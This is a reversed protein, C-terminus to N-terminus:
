AYPGGDHRLVLVAADDRHGTLDAVAIVEAALEDADADYAAGVLAAVRALGKEIPYTPGEVVGDTILVFAGEQSLLRRTVPYEGDPFLGLPLGGADQLVQAGEATGWIAPVHGARSDALEGTVPDFRLFTCTTLLDSSMSVLLNNARSLVDGPDTTAGAVARLGTRVMGMFAAAEVDHGQVDGIAFGLSGDPLVFADYWDGGIDLGTQAPVYRAATRLGPLGPLEPPLMHRQLEVALAVRAQQLEIRAMVQGTLQGLRRLLEDPPPTPTTRRQDM